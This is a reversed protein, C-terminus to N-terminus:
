PLIEFTRLFGEVDRFFASWDPPCDNHGASYTIMKGNKANEFLTVGHRYPITEDKEGHIVLVPGEFSRVVSLNDFPDRVLVTPMLYRRAFSRISTFTSM